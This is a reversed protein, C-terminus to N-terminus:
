PPHVLPEKHGISFNVEILVPFEIEVSQHQQSFHETTRAYRELVLILVFKSKGM